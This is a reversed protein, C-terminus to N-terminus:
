KKQRDQRQAPRCIYEDAALQTFGISKRRTLIGPPVIGQLAFHIGVDNRVASGPRSHMNIAGHHLLFQITGKIVHSHIPLIEPQLVKTM